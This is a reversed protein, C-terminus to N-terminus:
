IISGEGILSACIELAEPNSCMEEVEERYDISLRGTIDILRSTTESGFRKGFSLVLDPHNLLVNDYDTHTMYSITCGEERKAMGEGYGRLFSGLWSEQNDRLAENEARLEELQEATRAAVVEIEGFKKQAEALVAKNHKRLEKMEADKADMEKKLADTIDAHRAEAEEATIDNAKEQISVIAQDIEAIVQMLINGIKASFTSSENYGLLEDVFEVLKANLLLNKEEIHRQITPASKGAIMKLKDYLSLDAAHIAVVEDRVVSLRGGMAALDETSVDDDEIEDITEQLKNVYAEKMVELVDDLEAMDCLAHKARHLFNESDPSISPKVNALKKQKVSGTSNIAEVIGEDIQEEVIDGIDIPNKFLGIAESHTIFHKVLAAEKSKVPLLKLVKDQLLGVVKPLDVPITPRGPVCSVKTLVLSVNSVCESGSGPLIHCIDKLLSIFLGVNSNYIQTIDAVLVFKASKVHTLLEKIYFANTIDQVVGRNDGFGPADWVVQDIRGKNWKSPLTTKSETSMGIEPGLSRDGKEIFIMGSGESDEVARLPNAIIYNVLTSKGARTTGLVVAIDEHKVHRSILGSAAAVEDKVQTLIEIDVGGSYDPDASSPPAPHSSAGGHPVEDPSHRAKKPNTANPSREARASKSM